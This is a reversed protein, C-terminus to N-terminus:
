IETLRLIVFGCAISILKLTVGEFYMKCQRNLSPLLGIAFPCAAILSVAYNLPDLRSIDTKTQFCALFRALVDSSLLCSVM